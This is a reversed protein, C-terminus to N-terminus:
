QTKLKMYFLSTKIQFISVMPKIGIANIKSPLTDLKIQVADLKFSFPTYVVYKDASLQISALKKLEGPRRLGDATYAGGILISGCFGALVSTFTVSLFPPVCESSAFASLLRRPPYLSAMLLALVVVRRPFRHIVDAPLTARVVGVDASGWQGRRRRVTM